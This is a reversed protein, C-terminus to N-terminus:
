AVSLLLKGEPLLLKQVAAPVGACVQTHLERAQTVTLALPNAASEIFGGLTHHAYGVLGQRLPLSFVGLSIGYVVTHWGHAAGNEVAALYRQILRHDRLGRLRSIQRQGVRCSAVAFEKLKPEHALQQDLEILERVEHRVAHGHARLIAPLEVPVLLEAQYTQLFNQLASLSRVRQLQLGVSSLAPVQPEASAGVQALLPHPDGLLLAIDQPAIHIRSQM